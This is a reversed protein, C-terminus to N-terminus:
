IPDSFCPLQGRRCDLLEALRFVIFIEDAGIGGRDAM